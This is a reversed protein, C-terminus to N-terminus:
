PANTFPSLRHSPYALATLVTQVIGNVRAEHEGIAGEVQELSGFGDVYYTDKGERPGIYVRFEGSGGREVSIAISSFDVYFIEPYDAYFADRAAGFFFVTAM